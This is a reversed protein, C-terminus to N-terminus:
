IKWKSGSAGNNGNVEAWKSKTAPPVILPSAVNQIGNWAFALAMVTDDHMGDPASYRMLGSNPLRIAEYAQLEAILVLDNLISIEDYDFARELRGIASTKSANTTIFPQVPIGRAQLIEVVTENYNREVIMSCRRFTNFRKFAGEIRQAQILLDIKNFRDLYVLAKLGIDVVAIVTFDNHKALDVGIVYQHEALAEDQPIAGVADMVGRFVGGADAIFEALYEQRFIRDPLTARAAEIEEDAIFPNDSTPFQWSYYETYEPDLGRQFLRYFWNHGKPTSIFIARGQRDSLAPRIAHTWAEEKMFACEDMICLDLGEGRLSDPDDASRVQVTGGGPFTVMRDGLSINAGPIQIALEKVLRWGVAGMKYSPAVWWARGGKLAVEIDLATGVRTKGWRRGCALCKFRAPNDVVKRQGIHLSPLVVDVTPM